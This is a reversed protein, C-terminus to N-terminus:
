GVASSVTGSVATRQARLYDCIGPSIPPLEAGALLPSARLLELAPAATDVGAELLLRGGPRLGSGIGGLIARYSLAIAGNPSCPSLAPEFARVGADLLEPREPDVYPPNSIVLDDDQARCAEWWSGRLFAIREGVAHRAANSRALELAPESVDTAVIALDSREVALAIAIAGSGTGLELVRAGSALLPLALSVLEETEPRPVLVAPGVQLDLGRFSWEGLLHAVPEGRGRRATLARMASLEGQDLPRDHVLYLQLRDKGLM